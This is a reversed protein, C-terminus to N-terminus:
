TLVERLGLASLQCPLWRRDERIAENATTPAVGPGALKLSPSSRQQNTPLRQRSRSTGSGAGGLRLPSSQAQHQHSPGPPSWSHLLPFWLGDGTGWGCLSTIFALHPYSPAWSHFGWGTPILRRPHLSILFTMFVGTNRVVFAEPGTAGPMIGNAWIRSDSLRSEWNTQKM